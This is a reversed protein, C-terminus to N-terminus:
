KENQAGKSNSEKSHLWGHKFYDSRSAAGTNAFQPGVRQRNLKLNKSSRGQTGESWVYSCHTCRYCRRGDLQRGKEVLGTKHCASCEIM